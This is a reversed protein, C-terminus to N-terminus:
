SLDYVLFIWHCLSIRAPIDKLAGTCHEDRICLSTKNETQEPSESGTQSM